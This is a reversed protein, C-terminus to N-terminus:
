VSGILFNNNSLESRLKPYHAPNVQLHQGQQLLVGERRLVQVRSRIQRESEGLSQALHYRTMQRHMLLSHLLYRDLPELSTLGPLTPKVSRLNLSMQTTLATLSILEGDELAELEPILDEARIRLSQAWLYAATTSIGGSLSALAQWDSERGPVSDPDAETSRDSAVVPEALPTLWDQLAGGDLQPLSEVQELYASIRCVRDLFVWAWHNCGLVWFRSRDQTILNQLYEIGEWGQICRLFYVELAPIVVVTRRCDLSEGQFQPDDAQDPIPEAEIKTQDPVLRNHLLAPIALPDRCRFPDTLPQQLQLLQNAPPQWSQFSQHLIQDIPEVPSGLWVLSNGAELNNQWASVATTVQRRVTQLYAPPSPLRPIEQLLLTRVPLPPLQLRDNEDTTQAQSFWTEVRHMFSQLRGGMM